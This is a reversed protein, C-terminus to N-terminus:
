IRIHNLLVVIGNIEESNALKSLTLPTVGGFSSQVMKIPNSV